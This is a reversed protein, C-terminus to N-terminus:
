RPRTGKDAGTWCFTRGVKETEPIKPPDFPFQYRTNVYFPKDYGRFQWCSPVDIKDFDTNDTDLVDPIEAPLPYFRFDWDGNLCKVMPSSYRKAKGSAADSSARDPYLIFYSRPQLENISITDFSCYNTKNIRYKM